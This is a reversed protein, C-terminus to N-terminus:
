TNLFYYRPHHFHLRDNEVHRLLDYDNNILYEDEHYHDHDESCFLHIKKVRLENEHEDLYM